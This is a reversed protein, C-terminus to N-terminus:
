KEEKYLGLYLEELNASNQRHVETEISGNKLFLFRNAIKQIEFLDHSSILITINKEEILSNLLNRISIKSHIDLGNTPEDLILIKPSKILSMAIAFRKQMGGSIEHIFKQSVNQLNLIEILNDVHHSPIESINSQISSLYRLQERLTLNKWAITNQPCYGSLSRLFIQNTPKGNYHISGQSPQIMGSLIKYLTTKGSGNPGLIALIERKEISFSINKLISTSNYTKSISSLEIM